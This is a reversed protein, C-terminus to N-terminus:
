LSLITRSKLKSVNKRFQITGAVLKWVDFESVIIIDM